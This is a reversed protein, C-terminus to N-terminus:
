AEGRRLAKSLVASRYTKGEWQVSDVHRYGHRGYWARLHLAPEATDCALEAAGMQLARQEAFALLRSGTGHRQLLPDVAFQGFSAVDSRAYWACEPALKLGPETVTITGIVDGGNCALYCEGAAVRQATVAVAQYSATYNLGREALPAYARHLMATLSEISDAPTLARIVETPM